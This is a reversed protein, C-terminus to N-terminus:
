NETPTYRAILLRGDGTWVEIFRSRHHALIRMRARLHKNAESLLNELEVFNAVAFEAVNEEKLLFDQVKVMM